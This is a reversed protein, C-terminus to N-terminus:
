RRRAPDAVESRLVEDYRRGLVVTAVFGLAAPVLVWVLSISNLKLLAGSGMLAALVALILLMMRRSRPGAPQTMSVKYRSTYAKMLFPIWIVVMVVGVSSVRPLSMAGIAGAVLAGLILHYWWPTVLRQALQSADADMADLAARAELATPHGPPTSSEGPLDNEM